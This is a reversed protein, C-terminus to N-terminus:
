NWFRRSTMEFLFDITKLKIQIRIKMMTDTFQFHRSQVCHADMVLWLDVDHFFDCNWQSSNWTKSSKHILNEVALREQFISVDFNIVFTLWKTAIQMEIKWMNWKSGFAHMTRDCQRRQTRQLSFHNHVCSNVQNARKPRWKQFQSFHLVPWHM